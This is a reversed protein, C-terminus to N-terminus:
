HPPEIKCRSLLAATQKGIILAQELEAERAQQQADGFNDMSRRFYELMRETQDEEAGRVLTALVAIRIRPLKSEWWLLKLDEDLRWFHMQMIGCLVNAVNDPDGTRISFKATALEAGVPRQSFVVRQAHETLNMLVWQSDDSGRLLYLPFVIALLFVIKFRSM